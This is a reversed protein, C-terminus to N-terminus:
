TPRAGVVERIRTEEILPDPLGPPARFRAKGEDETEDSECSETPTFWPNREKPVTRRAPETLTLRRFMEEDERAGESKWCWPEIRSETWWNKKWWLSMGYLAQTSDENTSALFFRAFFPLSRFFVVTEVNQSVTLNNLSVFFLSPPGLM